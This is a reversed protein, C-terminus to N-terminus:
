AAMLPNKWNPHNVVLKCCLDIFEAHKKLGLGLLRNNLEQGDFEMHLMDASADMIAWKARTVDHEAVLAPCYELAMDDPKIGAKKERDDLTAYYEDMMDKDDCLYTSEPDTIEIPKGQGIGEIHSNVLPCERLAQRQIIDVQERLTQARALLVMYLNVALKLEPTIDKATLTDM